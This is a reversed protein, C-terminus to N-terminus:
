PPVPLMSRLLDLFLLDVSLVAVALLAGPVILGSLFWATRAAYQSGRVLLSDIVVDAAILVLLGPLLVWWLRVIASSTVIVLNTVPSLEVQLDSFVATSLPVRYYLWYGLTLWALLHLGAALWVPLWLMEPHRATSADDIPEPQMRRELVLRM